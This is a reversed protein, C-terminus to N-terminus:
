RRRRPSSRAAVAQGRGAARLCGHRGPVRSPKRAGARPLRAGAGAEIRAASWPSSIWGRQRRARESAHASPRWGRGSRLWCADSWPTAIGSAKGCPTASPACARRGSTAASSTPLAWRARRIQVAARTVTAEGLNFPDGDGGIRGRLMVLGTEAARLEVYDVPEAVARLARNSKMPKRTRWCRWPLVVIPTCASKRAYKAVHPAQETTSVIPESLSDISPESIFGGMMVDLHCRLSLGTPIRASRPDLSRRVPRATSINRRRGHKM